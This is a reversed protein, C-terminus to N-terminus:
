YLLSEKIIGKKAQDVELNNLGCLPLRYNEKILGRMAMAAKIPIPNTEVFAARFFPLLRYHLDKAREFDGSLGYNIMESIEGPYLNSVVSVVGKGGLSLLPLAMSDDGSLVSFDESLNAIVDMMQSISGSAEKVGVVNELEALRELLNTSINKCTRGQINYVVLPIGIENIKEFHQFIGEDNPKIYYPTVILAFDAGLEKAQKTDKITEYHSNTGTGVMVPVKDRSKKVVLKIIDKKEEPLLNPTEGTTGLALLGNEYEIQSEILQELAVYDVGGDDLFPTILATFTGNLNM